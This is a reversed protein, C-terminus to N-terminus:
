DSPGLDFDSLPAFDTGAKAEYPDDYNINRYGYKASTFQQISSLKTRALMDHLNVGYYTAGFAATDSLATYELLSLSAIMDKVPFLSYFIEKYEPMEWMEQRLNDFAQDRLRVLRAQDQPSSPAYPLQCETSLITKRKLIFHDTETEEFRGTGWEAGTGPDSSMIEVSEVRTEIAPTLLSLRYSLTNGVEAEPAPKAPAGGGARPIEPAEPAAIVHKEFALLPLHWLMSSDDDYEWVGMSRRKTSAAGPDFVGADGLAGKRHRSLLNMINGHAKYEIVFNDKSPFETGDKRISTTFEGFVKETLYQDWSDYQPSGTLRLARILRPRIKPIEDRIVQKVAHRIENDTYAPIETDGDLRLMEYYKLAAEGYDRWLNANQVSSNYSQDKRDLGLEFNETYQNLEDRISNLISTVFVESYMFGLDFGNFVQITILAREVIFLRVLMVLNAITSVRRSPSIIDCYEEEDESTAHDGGQSKDVDPHQRSAADISLTLALTSLHSVFDKLDGFGLIDTDPSSPSYVLNISDLLSTTDAPRPYDASPRPNIANPTAAGETYKGYCIQRAFQFFMDDTMNNILAQGRVNNIIPPYPQPAILDVVKQRLDEHEQQQPGQLQVINNPDLLLNNTLTFQDPYGRENSFISPSIQRDGVTAFRRTVLNGTAIKRGLYHPVTGFEYEEEDYHVINGRRNHDYRVLEATFDPERVIEVGPSLPAETKSLYVSIRGDSGREWELDIQIGDASPPMGFLFNLKANQQSDGILRKRRQIVGGMEKRNSYGATMSRLTDLWRTVWVWNPAKDNLWFYADDSIDTNWPVKSQSESRNQKPHKKLAYPHPPVYDLATLMGALSADDENKNPNSLAYFAGTNPDVGFSGWGRRGAGSRSEILDVGTAKISDGFIWPGGPLLTQSIESTTAPIGNEAEGTLWYGLTFRNKYDQIDTSHIWPNLDVRRLFYLSRLNSTMNWFIDSPSISALEEASDEDKFEGSELYYEKWINAYNITDLSFSTVTAGLPGEIAIMAVDKLAPPLEPILSTNRGFLSPFSPALSGNMIKQLTSSLEQIKKTNHTIEKNIINNMEGTTLESDKESLLIERIARADSGDGLHCFDPPPSKSTDPIYELFEPKVLKGMASLLDALEYKDKFLASFAPNQIKLCNYVVSKTEESATGQYLLVQEQESTVANIGDSATRLDGLFKYVSATSVLYEEVQWGKDPNPLNLAVGTDDRAAYGSAIGRGLFTGIAGIFGTGGATTLADGWAQSNNLDEYDIGISEGLWDQFGEKVSAVADGEGLADDFLVECSNQLIRMIADVLMNVLAAYLQNLAADIMGALFDFTPFNDPIQIGQFIPLGISIDIDPSGNCKEFECRANVMEGLSISANIVEGLEEDGDLIQEGVLAITQDLYCQLAENVLCAVDIKSLVDKYLSILAEKGRPRDQTAKRYISINDKPLVAIGAEGATMNGTAPDVVIRTALAIGNIDTVESDVIETYLTYEDDVWLDNSVIQSEFDVLGSSTSTSGPDEVGAQRLAKTSARTSAQKIIPYPIDGVGQMSRYRDRLAQVNESSLSMDGKFKKIQKSSELLNRRTEPNFFHREEDAVEEDSKCLNIDIDLSIIKALDAFGFSVGKDAYLSLGDTQKEKDRLIPIPLTFRSLFAFIDFTNSDRSTLMEHMSDLHILYNATTLHNITENNVFCHYGITHQENDVLAYIGEYAFNYGIKLRKDIEPDCSDFQPRDSIVKNRILYREIVRGAQRLRKLEALININSMFRSSRALAPIYSEIADVIFNIQEAFNYVSISTEIYGEEPRVVDCSSTDDPIQDFLSRPISVLVKMLTFPKYGVFYDEVVAAGSVVADAYNSTGALLQGVSGIHEGSIIEEGIVHNHTISYNPDNPHTVIEDSVVFNSIQHTHSYFSLTSGNGNADVTFEHVHNYVASQNSPRVNSTNDIYSRTYEPPVDAAKGYFEFLKGVGKLKADAFRDDRETDNGPSQHDSEVVIYYNSGEVWPSCENHERWNDLM